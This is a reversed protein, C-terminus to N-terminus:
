VVALLSFVLKINILYTEISGSCGMVAEGGSYGIWIGNKYRFFFNSFFLDTTSIMSLVSSSFGFSLSIHFSAM